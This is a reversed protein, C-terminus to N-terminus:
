NVWSRRTPIWKIVRGGRGEIGIDGYWFPDQFGPDWLIRTQRNRQAQTAPQDNDQPGDTYGHVTLIDILLIGTEQKYAQIKQLLWPYFYVRGHTNYDSNAAGTGNAQDLGSYYM